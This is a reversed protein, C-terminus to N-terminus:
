DNLASRMEFSERRVSAFLSAVDDAVAARREAIQQPAAGAILTLTDRVDNAESRLNDVIQSAGQRAEIPLGAADTQLSQIDRDAEALRERAESVFEENGDTALLEAREVRQTMTEYNDAINSRIDGLDDAAATQLRGMDTEMEDRAQVIEERTRAWAAASEGQLNASNTELEAFEEKLDDMAERAGDRFDDAAERIAEGVREPTDGRELEVQDRQSDMCATGFVLALTMAWSLHSRKM